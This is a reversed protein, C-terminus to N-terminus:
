FKKILCIIQEVKRMCQNFFLVQNDHSYIFIIKFSNYLPNQKMHEPYKIEAQHM